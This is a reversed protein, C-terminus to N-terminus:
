FPWFVPILLFSMIWALLDLPIGLKFFDSFRYGGSGFVLMHTQYGAPIAFGYSSGLCVGIIFPKPSVGISLATSIAIPLLLVATANNSMAETLFITLLIFAALVVTPHQGHFPTLFLDAYYRDAGVKQMAVGLVL